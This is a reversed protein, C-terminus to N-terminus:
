GRKDSNIQTWNGNGPQLVKIVMARILNM